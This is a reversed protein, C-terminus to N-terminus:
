SFDLRDHEGNGLLSKRIPSLTAEVNDVTSSRWVDILGRDWIDFLM